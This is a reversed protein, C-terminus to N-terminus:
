AEFWEGKTSDHRHFMVIWPCESDEAKDEYVWFSYTDNNKPYIIATGNLPYVSVPTDNNGRIVNRVWDTSSWMHKSTFVIRAEVIDYYYRSTKNNNNM